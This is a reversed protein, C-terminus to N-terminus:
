KLNNASSDGSINGLSLPYKKIESDKSKFQYKTAANVFLSKNTGNYHM